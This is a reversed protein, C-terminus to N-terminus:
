HFFTVKIQSSIMHKENYFSTM